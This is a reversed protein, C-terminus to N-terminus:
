NKQYDIQLYETTSKQSKTILLKFEDNYEYLYDVIDFAAQIDKGMNNNTDLNFSMTSIEENYHSKMLEEMTNLPQNVLSGFLDDKDKYFFYLAGTTVGANKCINRLSASM